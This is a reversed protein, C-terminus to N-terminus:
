RAELTQVRARLSQIEKILMPVLKSYDVAMMEDSNTPQYVAEPVVTVLEQAIFGYRQHSNNVKWNFQRVQLSDILSSASESDLINEKLRKDSTVNYLVAANGNNTISGLTGTGNSFNAFIATTNSQSDILKIGGNGSSSLFSSIIRFSTGSTVGVLLNGSADLTMAQTFTIATNATGSVATFWQHV